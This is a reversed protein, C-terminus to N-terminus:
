MSSLPPEEPPWAAIIDCIQCLQITMWGLCEALVLHVIVFQVIRHLGLTILNNTLQGWHTSREVTYQMEVSASFVCVEGRRYAKTNVQSGHCTSVLWLMFYSLLM